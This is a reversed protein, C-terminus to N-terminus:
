NSISTGTYTWKILRVSGPTGGVDITGILETGKVTGKITYTKGSKEDAATLAVAGTKPVYTAHTFDMPAPSVFRGTLKGHDGIMLQVTIEDPIGGKPMWDGSWTGDLDVPAAVVVAASALAVAALMTLTLLRM